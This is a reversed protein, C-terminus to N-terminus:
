AFDAEIRIREGTTIRVDKLKLDGLPLAALSIPERQIKELQPRIFSSALGAAMGGGSVDLNSLRLQLSDDLTATGTVTLTAKFFGMKATIDSRLDVTRGGTANLDLTLDAVEVGRQRAAEQAATLALKQLDARGIEVNLRGEGRRLVLIRDIGEAAHERFQAQRARLEIQVPAGQLTLPHATFELTEVHIEGALAQGPKPRPSDLGASAGSLDIRLEALKPFAGSAAVSRPSLGLQQFGATLAARLTDADTPFAPGQLPLM